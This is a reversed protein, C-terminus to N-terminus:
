GPRASLDRAAAEIEELTSAEVVSAAGLREGVQEDACEGVILHLPKGADRCRGAVEALCKGELTQADLRGEGSVVADLVAAAGPRLEAGLVAWLGGALGGAAGTMEVGRPDRPLEKALEDLRAALRDLAEPSAGKQPGFVRAADEWPTRVDCWVELAAGGLGGAERIAEIAGAGGDVTASGGAAVLVRDAGRAVAPAILEGTGASSAREPDLEGAELLGLGSAAAVEVLARSDGVWGFEAEIPRGLADHAPAPVREGGLAALLVEVTGEGGDALPCPDARAGAERLGRGIAQAVEGAAFTGKFSDPAVLFARERAHPNM